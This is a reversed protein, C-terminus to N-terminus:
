HYVGYYLLLYTFRLSLIKMGENLHESYRVCLMMTLNWSLLKRILVLMLYLLFLSYLFTINPCTRYRDFTFARKELSKEIRGFTGDFNGM